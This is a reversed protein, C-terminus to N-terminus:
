DATYHCALLFVDPSSDLLIKYIGELHYFCEFLIIHTHIIMTSSVSSIPFCLFHIFDPPDQALHIFNIFMWGSRDPFFSDSLKRKFDPVLHPHRGEDSRSFVSCSPRALVVLLVFYTIKFFHCPFVGFRM